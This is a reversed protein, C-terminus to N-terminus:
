GVLPTSWRQDLVQEEMVSAEQVIQSRYRGHLILADGMILLVLLVFLIKARM